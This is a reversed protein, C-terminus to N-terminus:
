ADSGRHDLRLDAEKEKGNKAFLHQIAGNSIGAGCSRRPVSMIGRAVGGVILKLPLVSRDVSCCLVVQLCKGRDIGPPSFRQFSVFLM